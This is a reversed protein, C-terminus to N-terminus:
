RYIAKIQGWTRRRVPTPTFAFKQICMQYYDFQGTDAVFINGQNDLAIGSPNNFGCTQNDLPAGWSALLKGDPSFMDVHGHGAGYTTAYVNDAADTAVFYPRGNGDLTAVFEGNLRYQLVYGAAVYVYSHGDTAIGVPSLAYGPGPTDAFRGIMEGTSAFKWWGSTESSATYVYGSDDVAVGSPRAVTGWSRQYQGSATFVKVRRGGSGAGYDAVYALGDPGFAIASPNDLQEVDGGTTGWQGRYVGDNSFMTMGQFAEAVYLNGVADCAMGRPNFLEGPGFGRSGWKLVLAPPDVPGSAGSPRSCVLLVLTAALAPPIARLCGLPRTPRCRSM